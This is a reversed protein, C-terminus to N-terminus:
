NWASDLDRDIQHSPTLFRLNAYFEARDILEGIIAGILAVTPPAASTALVILPLALGIVIRVAATMRGRQTPHDRRALYLVLKLAATPWLLIPADLLIGIYFAGTLTAMASHPVTTAPQGPVRYVMDMSFLAAFGLVAAAWSAAGPVGADVLTLACVAAFFASFFAAERSIWSSRFNLVGRWVRTIKGLHLASVAMALVGGATFFPLAVTRGIATAAAFWAVLLAAASTFFWLSWESRLGHWGSASSRIPHTIQVPAATMEPGSQRRDGVIRVAPGLGTDPFGAHEVTSPEGDSKFRLADTPCAVVCAPTLEDAQRHDCFTCKEMIGTGSNFQPAEYPCVWSCYRCGMCTDEDILVAGTRADKTYANAPCGALCAPELCHNCALSLHFVPASPLRQLNFTHIRRWSLDGNVPNLGCKEGAKTALAALHRAWRNKRGSPLPTTSSQVDLVGLRSFEAPHPADSAPASLQHSNRTLNNCAVVCAACGTCRDLDLIFLAQKM